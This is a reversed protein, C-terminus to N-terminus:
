RQPNRTLPTPPNLEFEIPLQLLRRAETQTTVRAFERECPICWGRLSISAEWVTADCCLCKSTKVNM